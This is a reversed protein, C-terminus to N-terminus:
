KTKMLIVGVVAGVPQICMAVLEDRFNDHQQGNKKASIGTGVLSTLPLCNSLRFGRCIIAM